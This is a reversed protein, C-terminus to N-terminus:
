EPRHCVAEINNGDPDIVVAGYYSPCYESRLRPAGNDQAGAIVAARHFQDVTAHDAGSGASVIHRWIAVLALQLSSNVSRNM